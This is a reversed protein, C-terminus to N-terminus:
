AQRADTKRKALWKDLDNTTSAADPGLIRIRTEDKCVVVEVVAVPVGADKACKILRM